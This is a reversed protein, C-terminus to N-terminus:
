HTHACRKFTEVKADLELLTLLLVLTAADLELLALLLVLTGADPGLLALLLVLTAADIDFSTFSTTNAHAKRYSVLPTQSSPKILITQNSPIPNTGIIHIYELGCLCNTIFNMGMGM